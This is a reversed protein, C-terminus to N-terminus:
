YGIFYDVEICTLIVNELTCFYRFTLSTIWQRPTLWIIYYLTSVCPPLSSKKKLLQFGCDLTGPFLQM